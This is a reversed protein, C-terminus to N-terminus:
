VGVSAVRRPAERRPKLAFLGRFGFRDAVKALAIGGVSGLALGLGYQLMPQEIGARLLVIRTGALFFVHSLYIELSFKGFLPVFRAKGSRHLLIALTVFGIGGTTAQVLYPISHTDFRMEEMMPLLGLAIVAVPVLYRTAARSWGLIPGTRGMLHGLALFVFYQRLQNAPVWFFPLSVISLSASAALAGAAIAREDVGLRRLGYFLLQGLFIVYLFWFHWPPKYVATWLDVMAFPENTSNGAMTHLVAFLPVWVVYPYVLSRSKETLFSRTDLTLARTLFMGSVYFFLAMSWSGFYDAFRSPPSGDRVVGAKELGEVVHFNVVFLISFGRAYDLWELRDTRPSVRVVSGPGREHRAM